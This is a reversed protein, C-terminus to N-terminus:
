GTETSLTVYVNEQIDVIQGTVANAGEVLRAMQETPSAGAGPPAVGLRDDQYQMVRIQQERLEDMKRFVESYDPIRAM